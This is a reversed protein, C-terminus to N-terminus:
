LSIRLIAPIESYTNWKVQCSNSSNPFLTFDTLKIPTTFGSIIVCGNATNPVISAFLLNNCQVCLYANGRGSAGYTGPIKASDLIKIPIAQFIYVTVGEPWNYLLVGCGKPCNPDANLFAGAGSPCQSKVSQLLGAMVL